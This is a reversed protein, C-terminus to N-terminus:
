FGLIRELKIKTNTINDFLLAQGNNKIFVDCNKKYDDILLANQNAYYAKENGNNVILIHHRDIKTNKLLWNIKGIKGDTYNVASLIFLDINEEICIKNLWKYFNEANPLWEINEWFDAGNSHIVNWDVKTGSICNLKECAGRFNCIVGDMDLYITNINNM